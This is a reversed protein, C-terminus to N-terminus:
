LSCYIMFVEFQVTYSYVLSTPRNKSLITHFYRVLVGFNSINLISGLLCSFNDQGLSRGKKWVGSEDDAVQLVIDSDRSIM